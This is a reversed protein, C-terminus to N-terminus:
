TPRLVEHCTLCNGESVALITHLRQSMSQIAEEARIMASSLNQIQLKWDREESEEMSKRAASRDAYLKFNRQFPSDFTQLRIRNFTLTRRLKSRTLRAVNLSKPVVRSGDIDWKIENKSAANLERLQDSLSRYNQVDTKKNAVAWEVSATLPLYEVGVKGTISMTDSNTTQHDRSENLAIRSRNNYKEVKLVSGIDRKIVDPQIDAGIDFGYKSLSALVVDIPVQAFVSLSLQFFLM